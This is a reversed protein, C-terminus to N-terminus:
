LKALEVFDVCSTDSRGPRRRLGGPRGRYTARGENSGSCAGIARGSGRRANGTTECAAEVIDPARAGSSRGFGPWALSRLVSSIASMISSTGGSSISVRSLFSASFKWAWTRTGSVQCCLSAVLKSPPHVMRSNLRLSVKARDM